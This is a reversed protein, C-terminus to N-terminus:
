TSLLDIHSSKAIMIRVIPITMPSQTAPRQAIDQPAPEGDVGGKRPDGSSAAASQRARFIPHPATGSLEEADFQAACWM